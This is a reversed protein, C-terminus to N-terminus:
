SELGIRRVWPGCHVCYREGNMINIPGGCRPCVHGNFCATTTLPHHTLVSTKVNRRQEIANNM